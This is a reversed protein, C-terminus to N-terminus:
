GVRVHTLWARPSVNDPMALQPEVDHMPKGNVLLSVRRVSPFHQDLLRMLSVVALGRKIESSGSHFPTETFNIAAEGSDNVFVGKVYADSRFLPEHSRSPGRLLEGIANAM